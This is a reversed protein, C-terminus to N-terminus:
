QPLDGEEAMRLLQERIEALKAPDDAVDATVVAWGTNGERDVIEVVRDDTRGTAAMAMVTMFERRVDDTFLEENVEFGAGEFGAESAEKMGKLADALAGFKDPEMRLRLTELYLASLSAKDPGDTSDENMQGSKRWGWPADLGM